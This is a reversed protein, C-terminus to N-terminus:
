KLNYSLTIAILIIHYTNLPINSLESISAYMYLSSFKSLSSCLETSFKQVVIKWCITKYYNCMWSYFKFKTYAKYSMGFDFVIYQTGLHLGPAISRRPSFQQSKPNPLCKKAVVDFVHDIFSCIWLTSKVLVIFNQVEFTTTLLIFLCAFSPSFMNALRTTNMIYLYNEFRLLRKVLCHMLFPCLRKCIIKWYFDLFYAYLFIGLIM